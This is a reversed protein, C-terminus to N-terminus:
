AEDGRCREYHRECYSGKVRPDGCYDFSEAPDGIIYRCGNGLREIPGTDVANPWHVTRPLIFNKEVPKPPHQGAKRLGRVGNRAPLGLRDVKSCIAGKSIGFRRGIEETTLGCDWLEILREVKHPPWIRTNSRFRLKLFKARTAINSYTRNLHTMMEFAPVYNVVSETLYQDQSKTWPRHKRKKKNTM